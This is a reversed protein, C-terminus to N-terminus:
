NVCTECKSTYIVLDNCHKTFDEEGVYDYVTHLLINNHRSLARFLKFNYLLMDLDIPLFGVYACVVSLNM